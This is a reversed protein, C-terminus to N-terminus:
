RGIYENVTGIKRDIDYLDHRFSNGSLFFFLFLLLGHFRTSFGESGRCIACRCNPGTWTRILRRFEAFETVKRMDNPLSTWVRVSSGSHANAIHSPESKQSRSLIKMGSLQM